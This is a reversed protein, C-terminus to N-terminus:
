GKFYWFPITRLFTLSTDGERIRKRMINLIHKGQPLGETSIFTEFGLQKQVNHGVIFETPVELTDVRVKYLDNFTKLYLMRKEGIESWNIDKGFAISRLGRQDKEPKLEPSFRLIRDEISDDFNIFVKIYPETIIKSQISAIETLEDKEILQDEYDQPNGYYSSSSFEL